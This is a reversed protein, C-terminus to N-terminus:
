IYIFVTINYLYNVYICLHMIKHQRPLQFPCLTHAVTSRHADLYDHQYHYVETSILVILMLNNLCIRSKLYFLKFYLLSPTCISSLSLLLNHRENLFLLSLQKGITLVQMGVDVLINGFVADYLRTLIYAKRDSM